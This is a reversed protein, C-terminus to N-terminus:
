APVNQPDSIPVDGGPLRCIYVSPGLDGGTTSITGGSDDCQQVTVSPVLNTGTATVSKSNTMTSQTDTLWITPDDQRHRQILTKDRQGFYMKVGAYIGRFDNEGIRAEAYATMMRRSGAEFSFETGIAAAHLGGMYRHGISVKWNDTMYYSLNITDFFSTKITYSILQAGIVSATSNGGEVGFLTQLTYRGFYLESEVGAHNAELGSFVSWRTHSAYFGILGIAPDRWFLHAAAGGIFDGQLSGAMVDFQIGFRNGLPMAVAGVVGGTGEGNLSGGYTEIKYNFGDVARTGSSVPKSILSDAPFAATALLSFGAGFL